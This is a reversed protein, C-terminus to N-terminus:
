RSWWPGVTPERNQGTLLRRARPLLRAVDPDTLADHELDGLVALHGSFPCCRLFPWPRRAKPIDYICIM